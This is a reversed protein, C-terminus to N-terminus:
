IQYDNKQQVDNQLDDHRLSFGDLCPGNHLCLLSHTLEMLVFLVLPQCMHSVMELTLHEPHILDVTEDQHLSLPPLSQNKAAKM